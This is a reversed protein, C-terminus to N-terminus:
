NHIDMDVVCALVTVPRPAQAQLCLRIDTSWKGPFVFEQEDYSTHIASASVAKGSEILPLDDLDDFEPGYQLGQAHMYAAVLGLHSIRKQQNLITTAASTAIGLKASKWQATYPLGIVVNQVPASLTVAGGTVTYTTQVSDVEPSLDAGDAWAIVSAGELHSLGSIVTAPAGSYIIFADAQKNLMGGRCETEKAWKELYRVTSGNVTRKVVYYVQDETSGNAGPLVAVDEILGSAGTSTVNLWCLVDEVKDIVGLMVTGDSRICHLRTDPKRQVAVRVLGPLGLEPVTATLDNSAYEYTQLDFVIEFVKTGSRDIFVARQDIRAPDVSSSGQTSAPKISFDTPTLPTDLASSKISFEAGQAGLIMRQLSIIWNITDVPGSGITRNIPGSDGIVEEDFSFFSDSISGFVGNQGAFWLRGEHFKVATPWGRYDSWQGESWFTTASTSGMDRLVRASVVKNSTLQTILAVGTQTGSAFNLAVIVTGSTYGGTKVGVRYYVIQNDLGDSYTASVNGGWSEGSVDAFTSNDTSSQLTVTAVWTGTLTVNIERSAGVGIVKIATSFTNEAAISKTAGSAVSTVSFLSGVHTTRFLAISSSITIDGTTASPTLTTPGLNQSRFPGDDAHYLCLSWSRGGPHVGRREIKRQQYGACALFVIDASQDFRINGLDAALYPSTISVTGASEVTCNSVLVKYSATSSFQVYFTPANPTFAISHTGTDLVTESVVDDYGLAMGIRLTVPGRQIVIRLAHEKAQDAASVTVAQYGIARATGNGTLNLYNGSADLSITGGSDSGDTWGTIAGSFTGNTVATSVSVRALLVDNIWVRMAGTTFEALATDTTSFIFPIVRAAANSATAGIYQLGPRLSMSGLVRPIWNTMTEASLAIRKQDVRALGLPSVIGRNFAYLAPYERM